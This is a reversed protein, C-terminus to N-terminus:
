SPIYEMSIRGGNIAGNQLQQGTFSSLATVESTCLLSVATIILSFPKMNNVQLTNTNYSYDNETCHTNIIVVTTYCTKHVSDQSLLLTLLPRFLDLAGSSCFFVSGHCPPNGEYILKLYNIDGNVKSHNSVLM